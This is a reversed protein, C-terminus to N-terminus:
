TLATTSVPSPAVFFTRVYFARLFFTWSYFLGLLGVIKLVIIVKGFRVVKVLATNEIGKHRGHATPAM